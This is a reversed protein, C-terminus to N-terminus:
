HKSNQVKANQLKPIISHQFKRNNPNEFKRSKSNQFGVELGGDFSGGRGPAESAGFTTGLPHSQLQKM